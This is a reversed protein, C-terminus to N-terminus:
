EPAWWEQSTLDRRFKWGRSRVGAVIVYDRGTVIGEGFNDTKEGSLNLGRPSGYRHDLLWAKGFTARDGIKHKAGLPNPNPKTGHPPDVVLEAPCVVEQSDLFSAIALGQRTSGDDCLLHQEQGTLSAIGLVAHQVSGDPMYRGNVIKPDGIKM